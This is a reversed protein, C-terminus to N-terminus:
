IDLVFAYLVRLLDSRNQLEEMIRIAAPAEDTIIGDARSLIFHMLTSDANCTWVDVRKGAEHIKDINERTCSEAELGFGDADLGAINGYTYYCLYVTNVEPYVEETYAIADYDLSIFYVQDLMGKEKVLAYLDDVMREDASEGKLEVYLVIRDKAADLMEEFSAVEVEHGDEATIRLEKVEALTMESPKRSDGTLREFTTDHNVIYYGDSTRQVDIESAYAGVEVAAELSEVTNETSMSGGGRHSIIETESELPFVEDFHAACIWALGVCCGLILVCVLFSKWGPRRYSYQVKKEPEEYGDFIMTLRMIQFPGFLLSYVGLVASCVYMILLMCFRHKVTELTFMELVVLPVFGCILLILIWVLGTRFLYRFYRINISRHHAKMLLASDRYSDRVDKDELVLEHFFFIHRWAFVALVLLTGFYLARTFVNAQIVSLIFDPIVFTSTLSIGLGAGCLPVFFSVFLVILIGPLNLLKRGKRFAEKVIDKTKRNEQYLINRSLLIMANLDFVTYVILAALGLLLILWGQWTRLLFPVDSSTIAPKGAVWLLSGTLLRLVGLCAAIFLKMVFEYSLILPIAKRFRFLSIEKWRERM